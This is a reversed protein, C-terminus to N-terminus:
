DYQLADVPKNTAARLTKYGVTLLTVGLMVLITWIFLSFGIAIHYAFNDLWRTMTWYAVPVAIV